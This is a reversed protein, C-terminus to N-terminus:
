KGGGKLGKAKAIAARAANQDALQKGECPQWNTWELLRECAALLDPAAAILQANALDEFDCGDIRAVQRVLNSHSQLPGITIEDPSPFFDWSGATHKM